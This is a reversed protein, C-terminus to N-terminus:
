FQGVLEVTGIGLRANIKPAVRPTRPSSPTTLYLVAGTALGVLGTYFGVTTVTRLQRYQNCGSTDSANECETVKWQGAENLSKAKTMAWIATVGSVALAAGGVGFSVWTASRQAQNRDTPKSPGAPPLPLSSPTRPQFDVLLTKAEGEKVSTVLEQHRTGLQAIVHHTGPDVPYGTCIASSPLEIADLKFAVSTESAGSVKAFLRPIRLQLAKLEERADERAHHQVEPDGLGDDLEQAEAYLKSAVILHGLRVQARAMFVALSPLKVISYANSFKSLAEAPQNEDYAQLGETAFQYARAISSDDQAFAKSSALTLLTLALAWSSKM